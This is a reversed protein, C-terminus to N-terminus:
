QWTRNEHDVFLLFLGLLFWTVGSAEGEETRGEKKRQRKETKRERCEDEEEEELEKLRVCLM